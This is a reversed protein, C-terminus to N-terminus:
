LVQTLVTETSRVNSISAIPVVGQKTNSPNTVPLEPAVLERGARDTIHGSSGKIPCKGGLSKSFHV